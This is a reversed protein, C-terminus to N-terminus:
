GDWSRRHLERALDGLFIGKLVGMQNVFLLALEPGHAELQEFVESRNGNVWSEALEGARQVLERFDGTM